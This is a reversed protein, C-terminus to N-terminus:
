DAFNQAIEAPSASVFNIIKKLHYRYKYIKKCGGDQGAMVVPGCGGAAAQSRAVQAVARGLAEGGQPSLRETGGAPVYM